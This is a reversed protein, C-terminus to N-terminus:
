VQKAVFPRLYYEQGSRHQFYGCDIFHSIVMNMPEITAYRRKVHIEVLPKGKPPFLGNSHRFRRHRYYYEYDLHKNILNELQGMGMIKADPFTPKQTLLLINDGAGIACYKDGARKVRKRTSPFEGENITKVYWFPRIGMIMSKIEERRQAGCRPCDYRHCYFAKVSVTGNSYVTIQTLKGCNAKKDTPTPELLWDLSTPNLTDM